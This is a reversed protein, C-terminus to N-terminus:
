RHWLAAQPRCSGKQNCCVSLTWGGDEGLVRRHFRFGPRHQAEESLVVGHLPSSMQCRQQQQSDSLTWFLM